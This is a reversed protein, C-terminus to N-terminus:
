RNLRNFTNLVTAIHEPKRNLRKILKAPNLGLLTEFILNTGLNCAAQRAKSGENRQAVDIAIERFNQIEARQNIWDQFGGKYWQYLNDHNFGPHGNAALWQIIRAYTKGEDLQLNVQDRLASPLRAIKGNRRHPM